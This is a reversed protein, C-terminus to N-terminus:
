EGGVRGGASRRRRARRVPAANGTVGDLSLDVYATGHRDAAPAFVLSTLVDNVMTANGRVWVGRRTRKHINGHEERGFDVVGLRNGTVEVEHITSGKAVLTISFTANTDEDTKIAGETKLHAIVIPEDKVLTVAEEKEEIEINVSTEDGDISVRIVGADGDYTTAALTSAVATPGADFAVERGSRTRVYAGPPAEPLTLEGNDAVVKVQLVADADGEVTARLVKTPEGRRAKIAQLSLVPKADDRRVRLAITHTTQAERDDATVQTSM